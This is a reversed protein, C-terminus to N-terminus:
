ETTPFHRVIGQGEEVMFGIKGKYSSESCSYTVYDTGNYNIIKYYKCKEKIDAVILDYENDSNDIDTNVNVYKVKSYDYSNGHTEIFQSIIINHPNIANLIRCRTGSLASLPTILHKTKYKKNVIVVKNRKNIYDVESYDYDDNWHGSDKLKQLFEITKQSQQAL